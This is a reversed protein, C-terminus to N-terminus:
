SIIEKYNQMSMVWKDQNILKHFREFYSDTLYLLNTKENPNLELYQKLIMIKISLTMLVDLSHKQCIKEM